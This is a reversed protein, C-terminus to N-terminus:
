EDIKRKSELRAIARDFESIVDTDEERDKQAKLAEIIMPHYKRQIQSISWAAIARIDPRIDNEMVELLLILSSNDRKNAMAIIANRQLPKKGRWSGAMYGFNDKFERNTMTVLKKLSPYIHDINPEMEHHHHFDKERNYPCVYQCIDCGYIVSTIKKRFEEPMITKTQTQYSLCRRGNMRGDGLLAQTPCAQICRYCDGCGFAMEEDPEFEINTIMEGLYVWSGFEPTILLGNRGIFGLGARKAVAVDMLEGTDVMSKCQADPILKKIYEELLRLKERLIDHYDKGWSARAFSGRKDLRDKPIEQSHHSPYALAISLISKPNDFIKDPYIREEIMSHEFGTTHKNEKQEILSAELDDFPEASAFGIKDIGIEKAYAIINFKLSPDM